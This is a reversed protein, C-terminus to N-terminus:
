FVTLTEHYSEKKTELSVQLYNLAYIGNRMKRIATGFPFRLCYYLGITLFAAQTREHELLTQNEFAKVLNIIEETTKYM